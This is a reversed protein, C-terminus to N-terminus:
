GVDLRHTLESSAACMLFLVVAMTAALRVDLVLYYAVTAISVVAALTLTVPGLPIWVTALALIISFLIMPVGVFHTALNRRDRHYAAYQTLNQHISTMTGGNAEDNGRHPLGLRKRVRRSERRRPFSLRSSRRRSRASRSTPSPAARVAPVR